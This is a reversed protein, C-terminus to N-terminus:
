SFHTAPLALRVVLGSSGLLIAADTSGVYLLHAAGRSPSAAWGFLLLAFTLASAACAASAKLSGKM